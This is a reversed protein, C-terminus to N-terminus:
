ALTVIWTKVEGPAITVNLANPADTSRRQVHANAASTTNWSYTRRSGKPVAGSLYMETADAIPQVFLASLDITVPTSYTASEGVGYSHAIRVLAKQGYVHASILEVQPPLPTRLFSMTAAHGSLYDSIPGSLPAYSQHLPTYLANATTRARFAADALPALHVWTAGTIVLGRGDVGTENLPEGVGRGDDVTMRRHIMCELVGDVLSSCGQSRDVNVVLASTGDTLWTASNVPFYNGAIPQTPEWTWTPRFNRVRKQFERGNSDTYWTAQSQLSSNFRIIVEKGQGDDVPVPGVTWEFEIGSAGGRLRVVQSLWPTVQQWAESVGDGNVLNVLKTSSSLSNTGNAAPRFIYAGSDQESTNQYSAYWAFDQVFAHSVNTAKDTVSKILGTSGDFVVALNANELVSDAAIPSPVSLPTFLHDHRDSPAPAPPLPLHDRRDTKPAPPLPLHDRRDTPKPAAPLPLHDHRDTSSGRSNTVFRWLKRVVTEGEGEGEEEMSAGGQQLFYTSVGLGPVSPTFWTRYTANGGTAPNFVPLTTSAVKNGKGDYLTPAKTSSPISITTSAGTARATPNYLIVVITSSPHSTIVDCQSVNALPCYALAPKTGTTTIVAGLTAEVLADAIAAGKSIRQAYDYTVAQKATGSIADHHQAVSQAEWLAETATGDGGSFLEMHRAVQLFASSIRIYRKLAPRSTFYGTWYADAFDSYPFFDDTKVNWGLNEEHKARLYQSPTSYLARVTGNANVGDIIYDLNTM